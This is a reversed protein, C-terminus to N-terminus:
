AAKPVATPRDPRWSPGDAWAGDGALAVTPRVKAVFDLATHISEM